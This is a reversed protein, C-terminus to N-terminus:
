KTRVIISYDHLMFFILFIFLLKTFFVQMVCLLLDIEKIYLSNIHNLLSFLLQFTFLPGLCTISNVPFSICSVYLM